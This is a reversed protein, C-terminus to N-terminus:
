YNGCRAVERDRGVFSTVEGPRDNSVFDARYIEVRRPQTLTRSYTSTM